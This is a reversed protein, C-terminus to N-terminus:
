RRGGKEGQGYQRGKKARRCDQCRKPQVYGQERYYAQEGVSWVFDRGCDACRLTVDGPSSM